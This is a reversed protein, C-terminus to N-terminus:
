LYTYEFLELGAPEVFDNPAENDVVGDGYTPYTKDEWRRVIGIFNNEDKIHNQMSFELIYETETEGEAVRLSLADFCFRIFGHAFALTKAENVEAATLQAILLSESGQKVEVQFDGDQLTNHLYVWPRIASINIDRNVRIKQSFTVGPFLEDVILTSM